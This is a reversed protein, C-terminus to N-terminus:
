RTAWKLITKFLVPVDLPKAVFDNMGAERCQAWEEDASHATMAIIPLNKKRENMRIRRTAAFGDLEPMQLDMLVVKYPQGQHSEAELKSLAEFGNNAVDVLAGASRLIEEAIQQNVPNDEVLLIRISQLPTIGFSQASGASGAGEKAQAPGEAPLAGEQLPASEDCPLSLMVVGGIGELYDVRVEMQMLRLLRRTIALGLGSGGEATTADAGPDADPLYQDYGGLADAGATDSIRLELRLRGDEGHGASCHLRVGGEETIRVATLLINNLVQALHVPDAQVYRPLNTERSLGFSLGKRGAESQASAVADNVLEEFDVPVLEIELKGAELKSFDLIDNIILLLKEAEAHINEIYGSQQETMNEQRALYTMGLIANMPTRIEHSMNALFDTKSQNAANAIASAQTLEKDREGLSYALSDLSCALQRLEEPMPSNGIREDLRGEKIRNAADLLFRVPKLLSANCLYLAVALASCLVVALLGLMEHTDEHMQQYFSATSMAFLMTLSPEMGQIGVKEYLIYLGDQNRLLGSFTPSSEVQRWVADLKGPATCQGDGTGPYAFVLTGAKDVIHLHEMHRAALSRIDKADVGISVSAVLAPADPQGPVLPLQCDLTLRLRDTDPSFEHVVFRGSQQAARFRRQEQVTLTRAAGDASAILQGHEDILMLNRYLSTNKVIASFLRVCAAANMTSVEESKSLTLLLLRAEELVQTQRAAVAEVSRLADREVAAIDTRVKLWSTLGFLGLAPLLALLVILTVMGKISAPLPLKM